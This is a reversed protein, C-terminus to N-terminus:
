SLRVLLFDIANIIETRHGILSGVEKGLEKKPIGALQPTIMLYDIGEVALVPTLQGLLKQKHPEYKALPVIVTTQLADLLNSQVDLFLPFMKRTNVNKNQYVVFQAM